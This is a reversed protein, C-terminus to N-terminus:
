LGMSVICVGVGGMELRGPAAAGARGQQRRDERRERRQQGQMCICMPKPMMAMMERQNTFLPMPMVVPSFSGVAM